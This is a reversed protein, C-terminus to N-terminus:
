YVQRLVINISNDWRVRTRSDVPSVLEGQSVYIVSKIVLLVLKILYPESIFVCYNGLFGSKADLHDRM